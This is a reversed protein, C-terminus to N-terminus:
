ETLGAKKLNKKHEKYTEAYFSEGTELNNCFYYYKTEEPYLVANIADLGPNCIPGAPLGICIYTDYVNAYHEVMTSSSEVKQITKTVYNTTADSQLSPFTDPDNLRNLFVSAVIPMDEVTGAENQVISALTMVENLDMGLQDMRKYMDDTIKSEFHERLIKTVNYASDNVYFEYTDPFCYGEMAYFADPNHDIKGDLEFDQNANFQFLFEDASCVGYKELKKAIARLGSGEHITITVTEYSERMYSLKEIIDPYSLNQSLTIDGPYLTPQNSIRLAVKFLTKNKIINNEILIDAIQDNNSGQPINFTIERDAKNIGLYEMGLTIAGLSLVISISIIAITLTLGGIISGNFRVKKKKKKKKKGSGSKKKPKPAPTYDNHFELASAGSKNEATNNEGVPKKATPVDESKTNKRKPADPKVNNEESELESLAKEVSANHENIKAEAAPNPKRNPSPKSPRVNKKEAPTKKDSNAAKESVDANDPFGSSKKNQNNDM